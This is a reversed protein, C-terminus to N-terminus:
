WSWNAKFVPQKLAAIVNLTPDSCRVREIRVSGSPKVSFESCGVSPIPVNEIRLVLTRLTRSAIPPLLHGVEQAFHDQRARVKLLRHGVAFFVDHLSV